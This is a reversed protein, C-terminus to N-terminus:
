DEAIWAVGPEPVARYPDLRQVGVVARADELLFPPAELVARREVQLVSQDAVVPSDHPHPVLVRDGRARALAHAAVLAHEYVYRGLLLRLGGQQAPLLQMARHDLRQLLADDDHPRAALDHGRVRARRPDEPEVRLLRTRHPGEAAGPAIPPAPGPRCQSSPERAAPSSLM